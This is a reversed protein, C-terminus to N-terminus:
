MSEYGFIFVDCGFVQLGVTVSTASIWQVLSERRSEPRLVLREPRLGPRELRLKPRLSSLDSNESRLGPREPRLDAM